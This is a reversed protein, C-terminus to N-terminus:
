YQSYQRLARPCHSRFAPKALPHTWSKRGTKQTCYLLKTPCGKPPCVDDRRCIYTPPSNRSNKHKRMFFTHTCASSVRATDRVIFNIPYLPSNLPIPYLPLFINLLFFQSFDSATWSRAPFFKARFHTEFNKWMTASFKNYGRVNWRDWM